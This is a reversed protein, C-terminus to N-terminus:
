DTVKLVVRPVNAAVVALVTPTVVGCVIGTPHAVVVTVEVVAPGTVTEACSAAGDVALVLEVADNTALTGVRM